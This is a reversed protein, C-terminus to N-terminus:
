SFVMMLAILILFVFVIRQFRTEDIRMNLKTGAYMGFFIIPICVVWLLLVESSYLGRLAHGIGIIFASALFFGQLNAMMRDKEWKQLTAHVIVPPGNINFAAGLSGAVFGFVYAWTRSIPRAPLYGALSYVSFLVILSGLIKRLLQEDCYVLLLMGFPVGCAASALLPLLEKLEFHKRKVIFLMSTVALGNLLVLPTVIRLPLMFPLIAMSVLAQGFGSVGQVFAAFFIIISILIIIVLEGSM